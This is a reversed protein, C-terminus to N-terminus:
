PSYLIRFYPAKLGITYIFDAEYDIGTINQQIKFTNVRDITTKSIDRVQFGDNPDSTGLFALNGAVRIGTVSYFLTGTPARSLGLNISGPETPITPDSINLIYFDPRAPPARVRGLFLKNGLLYISTGYEGIGSPTDAANFVGTQIISAPNGINLIILERDDGSTALYAYKGRVAIANINNNINKSGIWVPSNPNSVDYVHFEHNQAPNFSSLERTGLYVKKDYYYISRGGPCDNGPCTLGATLTPLTSTAILFPNRIDTVDIVKLQGTLTDMAVFIYNKMLGTVPDRLSVADLAKIKAGASFDNLFEVFLGSSQGLTVNRIDAIALFPAEETGIYAIKNLVDIATPKSALIDSAFLKPNDWNSSPSDTICDGGLAIMGIIDTFFTALEIKQLRIPSVSWTVTSTAQKKCHTIDSVSLNKTYTLPGSTETTTASVISLFNSRSISRADEISKQAKTTAEISTETDVSVSQGGNVLLMVATITLILLTFAILLELTAAGQTYNKKQTMRM